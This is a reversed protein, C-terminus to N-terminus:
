NSLEDIYSELYGKICIRRFSDLYESVEFENEGINFQRLNNMGNHVTNFDHIQSQSYIAKQHQMPNNYPMSQTHSQEIYTVNKGAAM